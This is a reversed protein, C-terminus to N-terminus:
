LITWTNDFNLTIHKNYIGPEFELKCKHSIQTMNLIEGLCYNGFVIWYEFEPNFILTCNPQSKTIFAGLGAVSIGVTAGSPPVTEDQDVYLLYGNEGYTQNTFTYAGHRYTLTISNNECLDAPWMQSAKFATGSSLNTINDGWIFGYDVTWNFNVTTSPYTKKAFWALSMMNYSLQPEVLYICLSGINSSNNKFTISYEQECM